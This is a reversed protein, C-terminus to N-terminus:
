LVLKEFHEVLEQICGDAFPNKLGAEELMPVYFKRASIRCLALYSEWAEKYNLDMKMKYQLACVTSLCYDIYYFPNQFIHGQRQWWGGNGFFPDDEYNM